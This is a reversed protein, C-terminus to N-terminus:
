KLENAFLSGLKKIGLEIEKLSSNSFNLRVTNKGKESNYFVSGPVYAVNNEVCRKLLFGADLAEPMEVWIFMGGEPKIVKCKPPFYKKICKLMLDRRQKYKLTVARIHRNIPATALYRAVIKQNLTSCHLDSAQKFLLLKSIIEPAACVWGLRLGPSVIKSFSGLSIVLGKKDLKKLSPLFSKEFRIMSYPSDEVVPINYRSALGILERRRSLSLTIGTPNQFDPITYIFSPRIAKLEKKLLSINMGNKDMPISKYRAQYVNFAQLAGLYSPEELFVFSNKDLFLKGVLDLGQQAGSTILLNEPKVNLHYGSLFKCLAGRLEPLGESISYQLAHARPAELVEKACRAIDKVPFLEEAPLGGAFSILGKKDLLKLIDRIVSSKASELREAFRM